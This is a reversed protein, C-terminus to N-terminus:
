WKRIDILKEKNSFINIPYNKKKKFAKLIMELQGVNNIGIVVNKVIKLSKIFSICADLSTIKNKELWYYWKDFTAPDSKIIKKKVDKKKSLLIGQLFISRINIEIKKKIILNILNKDNYRRDFLNVPVQAIDIDYLKIIQFLKQFDYISVGIKKVLGLKKIKILTRYIKYGNKSLLDQEHHIYIGELKKLNLKKLSNAFEKFIWKEVYKINNPIRAIKSYVKCDSLDHKGIITESNKYSSATDLSSIKNKKCFKMIKQIEKKHVKSNKHGYKIGFNATGIVINKIM